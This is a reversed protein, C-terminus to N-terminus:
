VTRRVWARPGAAVQVAVDFLGQSVTVGAEPPADVGSVTPTFNSPLKGLARLGLTGFNMTGRVGAESTLGSQRRWFLFPEVAARPALKTISTYVGYFNNGPINKDFKNQDVKVM